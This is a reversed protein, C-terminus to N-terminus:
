SAKEAIRSAEEAEHRKDARTKLQALIIGAFVLACGVYGPLSMKEDLLLAGGIAGFVSETSLLIAAWSPDAGKQGLIQCTYAVGVSMLGAYLIPVTAPRLATLSIDEFILAGIMSLVGCVFFQMSAFRIASVAATAREIVMIHATWFVTSVLLVVDGVSATEGGKMCILYLGAVALVAGCWTLVSVRKRMFVACIPVMITYFGTIFSAKGASGTILIGYQQMTSAIFLVIGAVVSYILLLKQEHADTKKREFILIVPVLSASGLLFRVGNFTLTGVHDAGVRQAVFAFGWIIAATLLILASTLKKKM